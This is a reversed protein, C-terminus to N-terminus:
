REFNDRLSMKMEREDEDREVRPEVAQGDRSASRENRLHLVILMDPLTDRGSINHM